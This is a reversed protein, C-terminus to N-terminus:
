AALYLLYATFAALSSSGTALLRYNRDLKLNREGGDKVIHDEVSPRIPYVDKKEHGLSNFDIEEFYCHMADRINPLNWFHAFDELSHNIWLGQTPDNPQVFDHKDLTTLKITGHLTELNGTNM